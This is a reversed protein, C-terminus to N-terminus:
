RGTLVVVSRPGVEYSRPNELLPAAGEPFIEDPPECWTDLFRYWRKPAAPAPLAFAHGEWHANAILFLDIDQDVGNLHMALSRSEWSWDPQELRYGHWTIIPSQPHEPHGFSRRRLIPHHKRFHILLKCFRFLEAQSRLDRWNVWSLANDHCYANNNGQQTRGMEDGSLLMPVGHSLLLLALMNRMQRQRLRRIEVSAAPGEQGCNWSFNDNPGDKGGEGNAANHKHNYTVVDALTFGDHSTIFNLSCVPSGGCHEYLDPSGALRAALRPVMGLDGKVFCRIDDRFKDNWEAWHGWRPFTGAQYLGTADWPEAILKTHALVPDAGIRELVPPQALVTGDQGRSLVAALDFRFGDVHMDVVWYRLCDIILDQVVPHNCNLTNGCGTFNHYRSTDKDILYYTANDLGRYSWTPCQEDGEGTHNFVMDLIVEIGAAHLAKVMSQFEQVQHGAIANAAYSAKPAFLALPHYGWFNKLREGTQPNRRPNDNEEFETVPLLEVATVGLEQLYPIKDVIGLFTGPYAVGASPHQTFGRVHLEYIISDALPTRLPQDTGWDFAQHVVRARRARARQWAPEGWREGGCLARGYPDLLIRQRDARPRRQEPNGPGTVRYGYTIESDLGHIFAHWINGTRHVSPDLLFELVPAGEWPLFILLTVITAQQSFLAFNIGQPAVTAGLPL